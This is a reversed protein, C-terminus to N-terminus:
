VFEYAVEVYVRALAHEGDGGVKLGVGMRDLYGRVISNDVVPDLALKMQLSWAPGACRKHHHPDHWRARSARIERVSELPVLRLLGAIRGVYRAWLADQAGLVNHVLQAYVGDADVSEGDCAECCALAFRALMAHTGGVLGALEGTVVSALARSASTDRPVQALTPAHAACAAVLALLRGDSVWDPLAAELDHPWEPSAQIAIGSKTIATFARQVRKDSADDLLSLVGAEVPDALRDRPSVYDYLLGERTGGSSFTFVDIGTISHLVAELVLVVAPAQQARRKSIGYRQYQTEVRAVSEAGVAAHMAEFLASSTQSFRSLPTSFGNISAFPYAGPVSNQQAM